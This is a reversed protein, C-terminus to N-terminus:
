LPGKRVPCQHHAAPVLRAQVDVRWPPFLNSAWGEGELSAPSRQGRHGQPEREARPCCQSCRLARQDRSDLSLSLGGVGGM